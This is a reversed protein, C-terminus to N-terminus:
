ARREGEFQFGASRLHAQILGPTPDQILADYSIRVTNRGSADRRHYIYGAFRQFFLMRSRKLNSTDQMKGDVMTLTMRQPATQKRQADDLIHEPAGLTSLWDDIASTFDPIDNHAQRSVRDCYSEFYRFDTTWTGLAKQFADALGQETWILLDSHRPLIYIRSPDDPHFGIYDSNTTDAIVILEPLRQGTLPTGEYKWFHASASLMTRLAARESVIRGPLYCRILGCFEGEGLATAYETYGAPFVCRLQQQSALVDAETAVTLKESVLYVDSFM